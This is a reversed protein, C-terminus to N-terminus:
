ECSRRKNRCKKSWAKRIIRAANISDQVTKIQLDTLREAEMLNPTIVTSIPILHSKFHEFANDDILKSGTASALIPDTTSDPGQM